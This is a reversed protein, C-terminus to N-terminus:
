VAASRGTLRRVIGFSLLGLGAAFAYTSPEPVVGNGQPGKHYNYTVSGTAGATTELSWQNNGGYVTVAFDSQTELPVLFSGPGVWQSLLSPTDFTLTTSQTTSKGISVSGGFPIISTTINLTASPLSGSTNFNPDSSNIATSVDVVAKSRGGNSYNNLNFTTSLTESFTFTVSDLTANRVNFKPFALNGSWDTKTDNSIPTTTLVTTSFSQGLVPVAALCCAALCPRIRRIIQIRNM